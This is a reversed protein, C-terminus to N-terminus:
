GNDGETTTGPPPDDPADCRGALVAEIDSLDDVEIDVDDGSDLEQHLSGPRRVRVTRWGLERPAVFDKRPNDGIYAYWSADPVRREIEVFADPAPKGRGDGLEATLITAQSWDDVGLADAKARQSEFPGDSILGLRAIARLRAVAATPGALPEIAPRHRRYCEVLEVVLDGPLDHEDLVVDFTTSRHGDLFLQWAREGAGEVGHDRHLLRGIARFGSRVYDRELYITDDMDFVVCPTSPSM